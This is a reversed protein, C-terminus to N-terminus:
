LTLEWTEGVLEQGFGVYPASQTMVFGRKAYLARASDLFSNTWLVLKRYGKDRAFAICTDTLLGGLGLGRAEETLILMRLQAVRKSKKVVFVAGLRQGDREAIWCREWETDARRLYDSVLGAVLSEFDANLGFERAYIEGHQQVVWGMDGAQPARLLIRQADAEPAEPSLLRKVTQMAALLQPRRAPAVLSLMEATSAESRQQIPAWAQHGAPTLTLLMQRKDQASPERLLWKHTQMRKLIRSLYGMDLDLRRALASATLAPEGAPHQSLEFLVRMEAVSMNGEGWRTLMGIRQIYFRSFHRMAGIQAPSVRGKSKEKNQM